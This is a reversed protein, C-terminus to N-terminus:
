FDRFIVKRRPSKCPPFTAPQCLLRLCFSILPKPPWSRTSFSPPPDGVLLDALELAGGLGSGQKMGSEIQTFESVNLLFSLHFSVTTQQLM